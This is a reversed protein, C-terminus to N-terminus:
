PSWQYHTGYGGLVALRAQGGIRVRTARIDPLIGPLQARNTWTNTSPDYQSMARSMGWTGDPKLMRGGAVYLKGAVADGAAGSRPRALPQRGSWVGTSPDYADLEAADGATVYIRGALSGSVPNYRPEVTPRALYTWRNEAPDYRLLFSEPAGSVRCDIGFDDIDETDTDLCRGFVYLRGNSAWVTHATVYQPMAVTTWSDTAVTYVAMTRSAYFNEGTGVLGGPMYIRGDLVAAQPVVQWVYPADARRVWRNTGPLYETVTGVPVSYVITDGRSLRTRRLGGAIAFLRSAGNAKPVAALAAGRRPTPLDAFRVWSNRAIAPLESDIARAEPSTPDSCGLLLLLLVPVPLHARRATFGRPPSPEARRRRQEPRIRRAHM